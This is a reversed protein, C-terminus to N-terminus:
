SRVLISVKTSRNPRRLTSVSFRSRFCRRFGTAVCSVSFTAWPVCRGGRRESGGFGFGLGLLLRPSNQQTPTASSLLLAGLDTPLLWPPPRVEADTGACFDLIGGLAGCIRERGGIVRSGEERSSSEKMGL